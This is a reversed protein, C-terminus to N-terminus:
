SSHYAHFNNVEMLNNQFWIQLPLKWYNIWKAICDSINNKIHNVYDLVWEAIFIIIATSLTILWVVFGAELHKLTLVQPGSSSEFKEYAREDRHLIYAYRNTLGATFLQQLKKDFIFFFKSSRSFAIGNMELMIRKKLLRKLLKGQSNEVHWYM